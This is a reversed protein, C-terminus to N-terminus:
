RRGGLNASRCRTRSTKFVVGAAVEGSATAERGGVPVRDSAPERLCTDVRISLACANSRKRRLGASPRVRRKGRGTRPICVAWVPRWGARPNGAADPTCERVWGPLPRRLRVAPPYSPSVASTPATTAATMTSAAAFRRDGAPGLGRALGRLGQRWSPHAPRWGLESKTKAHSAGPLAVGDVDLVECVVARGGSRRM